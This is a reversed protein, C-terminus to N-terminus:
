APYRADKGVGTEGCVLINLNTDAVQEIRKRIREINQSVGILEIEMTM